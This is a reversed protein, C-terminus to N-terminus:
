GTGSLSLNQSVLRVLIAGHSEVIEAEGEGQGLSRPWRAHGASVCGQTSVNVRQDVVRSPQGFELAYVEGEGELMLPVVVAHLEEVGPLCEAGVGGGQVSQRYAIGERGVPAAQHGSEADIALM